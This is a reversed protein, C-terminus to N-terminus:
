PGGMVRIQYHDVAPIGNILINPNFKSNGLLHKIVNALDSKPVHFEVTPVDDFPPIGNVLVNIPRLGSTAEFEAIHTAFLRVKDPSLNKSVLQKTLHTTDM